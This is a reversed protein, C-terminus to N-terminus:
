RNNGEGTQDDEHLDVLVTDTAVLWAVLAVLAQVQATSVSATLAAVADRLVTHFEARRKGCWEQWATERRQQHADGGSMELPESKGPAMFGTERYFREADHEFRESYGMEDRALMDRLQEVLARRDPATMANSSQSMAGVLFV